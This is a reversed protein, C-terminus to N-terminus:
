SAGGLVPLVAAWVRVALAISFAAFGISICAAALASISQGEWASRVIDWVTRALAVGGSLVLGFLVAASAAQPTESSVVFLAAAPALGALLLGASAVGRATASAVTWADVEARFMSLFVFMSPAAVAGVALLALPVGLAHQILALGGQRTGLALGYLAALGLGAAARRALDLAEGTERPTVLAEAWGSGAREPLGISEDCNVLDM